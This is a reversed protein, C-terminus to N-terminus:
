LRDPDNWRPQAEKVVVGELSLLPGIREEGLFTCAM